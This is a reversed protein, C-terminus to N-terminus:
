ENDKGGILDMKYGIYKIEHLNMEAVMARSQTNGKNLISTRVQQWRDRNVRQLDSLKDDPLDHGWLELGFVKEFEVIAFVFCTKFKKSSLAKLREQSDDLLKQQSKKKQLKHLKLLEQQKDM